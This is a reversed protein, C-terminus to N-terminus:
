SARSRSARKTLEMLEVGALEGEVLCDIEEDGFAVLGVGDGEDFGFAAGGVGGVEVVGEAFEFDHLESGVQHLFLAGGEVQLLEVIVEHTLAKGGDFNNAFGHEM